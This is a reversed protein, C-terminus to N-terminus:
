KQSEAEELRRLQDLLQATTVDKDRPLARRRRLEALEEDTLSAARAASAEDRALVLTAVLKGDEDVVEMMGGSASQLVQDFPTQRNGENLVFTTM